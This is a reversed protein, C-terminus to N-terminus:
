ESIPPSLWVCVERGREKNNKTNLQETRDSEAVDHVTAQWAGRDHSEGPLFIPLPNGKGEGPCRGLGPVLGRTEQM